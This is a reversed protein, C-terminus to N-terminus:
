PLEKERAEFCTAPGRRTQGTVMTNLCATDSSLAVRVGIRQFPTHRFFVKGGVKSGRDVGWFGTPQTPTERRSCWSTRWTARSTSRAGCVGRALMLQEVEGFSPSFRSFRLHLWGWHNIM